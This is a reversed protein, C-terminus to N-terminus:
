ATRNRCPPPRVQVLREFPLGFLLLLVSHRSQRACVLTFGVGLELQSQHMTRHKFSCTGSSVNRPGYLDVDNSGHWYCDQLKVLHHAKM